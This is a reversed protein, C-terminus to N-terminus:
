PAPLFCQQGYRDTLCLLWGTAQHQIEFSYIEKDLNLTSVSRESSCSGYRAGLHTRPVLTLTSGDVSAQGHANEEATNTCTGQKLSKQHIRDYDGGPGFKYTATEISPIGASDTAPYTAKWSGVMELPIRGRAAARHDPESMLNQQMLVQIALPIPSLLTFVTLAIASRGRTSNNLRRYAGWAVFIWVYAALFGICTILLFGVTGSSPPGVPVAGHLIQTANDPDLYKLFGAAILTFVTLLLTSVSAFYCSVIFFIKFSLKGGVIRWSFYLVVSMLILGFASMVALSAFSLLYDKQEPLISVQAILSLFVTIALFTYAERASEATALDRSEIFAKPGSLIELVDSVYAPLAHLAKDFLEKM